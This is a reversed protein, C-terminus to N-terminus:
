AGSPVSGGFPASVHPLWTLEFGVEHRAPLATDETIKKDTVPESAQLNKVFFLPPAEPPAVAGPFEIPPTMTVADGSGASPLRIAYLVGKGFLHLEDIPAAFKLSVQEITAEPVVKSGPPMPQRPGPTAPRLRRLTRYDLSHGIGLELNVEKVPRPFTIVLSTDVGFLRDLWRWHSLDGRPVLELGRRTVEVEGSLPVPTALVVRSPRAFSLEIDGIRVSHPIETGSPVGHVGYSKDNLDSPDFHGTVRYQYVGPGPAPDVVGFGLARRWKPHTMLATLQAEVSTEMPPDSSRQRVLLIRDAARGMWEPVFAARLANLMLNLQAPDPLPEGPLMRSLAKAAEDAPSSLTPDAERIPLTVGTAVPVWPGEQREYRGSVMLISPIAPERPVYLVVTDISLGELKLVRSGPATADPLVAISLVKGRRLAAAFACSAEVTIEVQDATDIFTQTFREVGPAAFLGSIEATRLAARVAQQIEDNTLENSTVLPSPAPPPGERPYVRPPQPPPSLRSDRLFEEKFAPKM